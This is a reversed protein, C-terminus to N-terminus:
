FFGASVADDAFDMKQKLNELSAREEPTATPPLQTRSM